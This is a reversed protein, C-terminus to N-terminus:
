RGKEIYKKLEEQTKADQEAQRRAKDAAEQLKKVHQDM